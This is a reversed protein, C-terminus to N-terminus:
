PLVPDLRPCAAYPRPTGGYPLIVGAECGYAEVSCVSASLGAYCPLPRAEAEEAVVLAATPLLALALVFAIPRM